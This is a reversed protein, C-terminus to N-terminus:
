KRAVKSTIVGPVIEVLGSRLKKFAGTVIEEPTQPIEPRETKRRNPCHKPTFPEDEDPHSPM